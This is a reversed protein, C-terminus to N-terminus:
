SAGLAFGEVQNAFVVIFPISTLHRILFAATEREREIVQEVAM